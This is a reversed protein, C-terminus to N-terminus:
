VIIGFHLVTRFGNPGHAYRLSVNFPCVVVGIAQACYFLNSRYNFLASYINYLIETGNCGEWSEKDATETMFYFFYFFYVICVLDTEPNCVLRTYRPDVYLTLPLPM